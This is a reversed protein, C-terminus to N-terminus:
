EFYVSIRFLSFKTEINFFFFFNSFTPLVLV